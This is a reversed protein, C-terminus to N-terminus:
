AAVTKLVKGGSPVSEDSSSLATEREAGYSLFAAPVDDVDSSSRPGSARYVVHQPQFRETLDAASVPLFFCFSWWKTVSVVNM